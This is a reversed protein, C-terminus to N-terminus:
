WCASAATSTRPRECSRDPEKARAAAGCTSRFGTGTNWRGRQHDGHYHLLAVHGGGAVHFHQDRAPFVNPCHDRPRRQHATARPARVSASTRTAGKLSRQVAKGRHGGCITAPRRGSAPAGDVVDPARCLPRRSGPGTRSSGARTARPGTAISWLVLELANSVRQDGRFIQMCASTGADVVAPRKSSRATASCCYDHGEWFWNAASAGREKQPDAGTSAGDSRACHCASFASRHGTRGRRGQGAALCPLMLRLRNM